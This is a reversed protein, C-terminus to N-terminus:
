ILSKYVEKVKYASNEWRLNEVEIKGHKIFMKSLADYHLMGYIADALDDVDWFDVKLAHRLIEAVGSQKSIIVPVESMMAELPSIGFPESVSPMVYVDSMSFMDFVENGQLFGAFHFKTAIGLQAVRKIMRNLMDGSGAMVFRVNPDKDIVKKAAEIFYDPGKQFTVRGLFTVIKESVGKNLKLEPLSVPEVSNHV